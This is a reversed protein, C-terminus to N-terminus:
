PESGRKSGKPFLYLFLSRLRTYDVSVDLGRFHHGSAAWLRLNVACRIFTCTFLWRRLSPLKRSNLNASVCHVSWINMFVIRSILFSGILRNAKRLLYSDSFVSAVLSGNDFLGLSLRRVSLHRPMHSPRRSAGQPWWRFFRRATLRTNQRSLVSGKLMLTRLRVTASHSLSLTGPM